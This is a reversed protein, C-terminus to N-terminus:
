NSQFSISHFPINAHSHFQRVRTPRYIFQILDITEGFDVSSDFEYEPRNNPTYGRIRVM